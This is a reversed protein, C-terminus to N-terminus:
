FKLSDKVASQILVSSLYAEYTLSATFEQIRHIASIMDWLSGADRNNAQM